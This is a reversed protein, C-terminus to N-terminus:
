TNIQTLIKWENEMLPNINCYGNYEEIFSWSGNELYYVDCYFFMENGLKIAYNVDLEGSERLIYQVSEADGYKADDFFSVEDVDEKTKEKAPYPILTRKDLKCKYPFECRGSGGLETLSKGTEIQYFLNFNNPLWVIEDDSVFYKHGGFGVSESVYVLEGNSKSLVEGVPDAGNYGNLSIIESNGTRVLYQTKLIYMGELNGQTIERNIVEIRSAEGKEDIYYIGDVYFYEDDESDETGLLESIKGTELVDLVIAENNGDDDMDIMISATPNKFNVDSCLLENEDILFNVKEGYYTFENGNYMEIDQEIIDNNEYQVNVDSTDKDDLFQANSDNSYVSIETSTVNPETANEAGSYVNCGGCVITLFIIIIAKKKM